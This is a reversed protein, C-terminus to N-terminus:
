LDLSAIVLAWRGLKPLQSMTMELLRRLKVLLQSDMGREAQAAVQAAAESAEREAVRAAERTATAKAEAAKAAQAAQRKQVQSM